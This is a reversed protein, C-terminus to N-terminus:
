KITVFQEPSNRRAMRVAIIKQIDHIAQAMDDKDSPHTQELRNFKNVIEATLKLIENEESQESDILEVPTKRVTELEKLISYGYSTLVTPKLLVNAGIYQADNKSCSFESFKRIVIDFSDKRPYIRKKNKLSILLGDTDELVVTNALELISLNALSGCLEAILQDFKQRKALRSKFTQTM